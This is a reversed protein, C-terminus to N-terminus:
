LAKLIKLYLLILIFVGIVIRYLVFVLTSHTRLYKLLGWIAAYGVLASVTTGVFLGGFGADALHEREKILEYVGSLGIAPISLLFSFRMSAERTFGLMLGMTLTTGARSAGPILAFTQAIGIWLAHIWTFENLRREKKSKIDTIWLIVALGILASAIIYLSRAEG